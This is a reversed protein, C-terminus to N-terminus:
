RRLILKKYLAPSIAFICYRIKDKVTTIKSSKKFMSFFYTRYKTVWKEHNLTAARYYYEIFVELFNRGAKQSATELNIEAFKIARTRLIDLIICNQESFSQYTLSNENKRYGYLSNRFLACNFVPLYLYTSFEEDECVKIDNRFRLEGFVSRLFLKNWVLTFLLTDSNSSWLKNSIMEHSNLIEIDDSVPAIDDKHTTSFYYGSCIVLPVNYKLAMEYMELYMNEECIDDSDVFAFYDGTAVALGANRASSVGANKQHIVKVRNDKEAYSECLSPCNDTSGDDVLIVELNQYTQALISDICEELYKDSNLIPVIVSLLPRKRENM